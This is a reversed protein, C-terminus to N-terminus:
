HLETWPRDGRLPQAWVLRWAEGERYIEVAGKQAFDDATLVLVGACSAPQRVPARLVLVDSSRCLAELVEAKPVRVTWWASLRLGTENVARCSQSTCAFIRDRDAAPDTGQTLGRRGTWLEAGFLKEDPRMFIATKEIRVAAATGDPAVWAIPAEPRPWLAVAFAMPLGLWRLRGDWLCMWLIGIFAILLAPAPASAVTLVAHPAKAFAAALANM